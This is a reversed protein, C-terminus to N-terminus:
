KTAFPFFRRALTQCEAGCQPFHLVLEAEARCHDELGPQASCVTALEEYTRRYMQQQATPPLVAIAHRLRYEDHAILDVWVGVAVLVGLLIQASRSSAITSAPRGRSYLAPPQRYPHPHEGQSSFWVSGM